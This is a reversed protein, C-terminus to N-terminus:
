HDDPEGKLNSLNLSLRKFGHTQQELRELAEGRAEASMELTDAVARLQEGVDAGITVTFCLISPDRVAALIMHIRDEIYPVSDWDDAVAVALALEHAMSRIRKVQAEENHEHEWQPKCAPCPEDLRTVPKHPTICRCQNKVHGCAYEERFHAAQASM